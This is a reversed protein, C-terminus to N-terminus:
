DVTFHPFKFVDRTAAKAPRWEFTEYTLL